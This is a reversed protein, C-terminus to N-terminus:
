TSQVVNGVVHHKEPMKKKEQIKLPEFTLMGPNHINWIPLTPMSPLIKDASALM